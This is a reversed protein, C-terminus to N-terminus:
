KLEKAIIKSNEKLVVQMKDYSLLGEQAGIYQVISAGNAAGWRMAEPLDKGHMLGALTGTAYGDGAGTMDTVEAPFIGLKYFKSGNFGYSGEKGDTIIVMQPGLDALGKLLRKVEMKKERDIKLILEAEELNVILLTILSLMKNFHKLGAELEYTGPNFAVRAGTRNVFSALYDAVQSEKFSEAMSSIYVWKTPELEPLQYQWRDQYVLITREGKYNILVSTNSVKEPNVKIYRTDVKEKKLSELTFKGAPDDGINAYIATKLGLRAAGVANNGNNGGLIQKYVSVPLKSGFNLCLERELGSSKELHADNIKCFHDIAVDGISILDFM